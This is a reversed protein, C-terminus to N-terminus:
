KLQALPSCSSDLSSTGEALSTSRHRESQAHEPVQVSDGPWAEPLLLNMRAPLYWVGLASFSPELANELGEQWEVERVLFIAERDLFCEKSVAM